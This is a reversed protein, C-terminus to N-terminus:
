GLGAAKAFADYIELNAPTIARRESLLQLGSRYCEALTCGSVSMLFRSWSDANIYLLMEEQFDRLLNHSNRRQYLIPSSYAARYGARWLCASAIYGRLIDTVRDPVGLPLFMLPFAQELWLTAQSNFPCYTGEDLIFRRERAFRVSRGDVLRYIADVDPDDDVLFQMIAWPETNTGVSRQAADSHIYELPFGRPWCSTAGFHDYINLWGNSSALREGNQHDDALIDELDRDADKYPINDDDSEFIATAGCRIAYVYGLMKRTYSNEPIAHALQGFMAHQEDIGLYTIGDYAWNTPTKRDGVVVVQWGAWQAFETIAESPKNITTIVLYNSSSKM